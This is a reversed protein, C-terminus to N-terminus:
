SLYTISWITYCRELYNGISAFAIARCEEIGKMTDEYRKVDTRHVSIEAATAGADLAPPRQIIPRIQAVGLIPPFALAFEVNTMTIGLSYLGDDYHMTCKSAAVDDLAHRFGRYNLRSSIELLLNPSVPTTM